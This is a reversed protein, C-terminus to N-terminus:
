TLFCEVTILLGNVSWLEILTTNCLRMGSEPDLCHLLVIVNEPDLCHLLVIVSEFHPYFEKDMQSNLCKIGENLM